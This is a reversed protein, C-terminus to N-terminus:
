VKKLGLEVAVYNVHKTTTRSWKGLEQITGAARDIIAVCTTYSIVRDGDIRLNEKYRNLKQMTDRKVDALALM